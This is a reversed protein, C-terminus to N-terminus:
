RDLGEVGGGSASRLGSALGAFAFGLLTALAATRLPYDVASHAAVVGVLLSAARALDVSFGSSRRWAQVGAQAAWGLGLAVLLPGVVGTELWLELYDNHAHNFYSGSVQIMPEVTRYVADFSGLGAGWPSYIAAARLATPAITLREDAALAAGIPRLVGSPELLAILGVAGATAAGLLFAILARRPRRPFLLGATGAVAPILLVLGARSLTSLTGVGAAVMALAWIPRWRSHPSVGFARWLVAALPIIAVMLAAQHNRNAFVGVGYANNTFHYFRLGSDPGAAVQMFGLGMSFVALVVILTVIRRRAEPSLTLGGAFAAVPPLLSLEANWTGDPTLSLPLWPIPTGAVGYIAALAARGPLHIWVAPPLPALQLLPVALAAAGLALPFRATAPPPREALRWLGMGVVVVAVLRIVAHGIWGELTAGGLLLACAILAGYAIEFLKDTWSEHSAIM